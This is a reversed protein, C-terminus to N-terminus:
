EAIMRKGNIIVTDGAKITGNNLAAEADAESAFTPANGGAFKTTSEGLTKKGGTMAKIVDETTYPIAKEMRIVQEQAAKGQQDPLLGSEIMAKIAETSIRRIDAVKLAVDAVTDGAMPKLKELQGALVTLGTATGSAEITALYRSVGSYLTEIAKTDNSSLKRAGASKVYNIMGEKTSIFPLVGARADSPLSMINEAVSAAGRLATVARQAIFQQQSSKASGKDEGKARAINLDQAMKEMKQTADFIEKQLKFTETLGQKDYKARLLPSESEAIAVSALANGKASDIARTKEALELQKYIKENKAKITQLEKEFQIQERRFVDQRGTQYGKMMGTMSDIAARGSQSGYKGASSGVFAILGALTSMGIFTEQSPKFEPEPTAALQERAQGLDATAGEAQRGAEAAKIKAVDINKQSELQGLNSTALQEQEGTRAMSTIQDRPSQKAVKTLSLPDSLADNMM